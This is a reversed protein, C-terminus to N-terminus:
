ELQNNIAELVTEDDTPKFLIAAEPSYWYSIPLLCHHDFSSSPVDTACISPLREQAPAESSKLGMLVDQQQLKRKKSPPQLGDSLVLTVEKTKAKTLKLNLLDEADSFQGEKSKKFDRRSQM